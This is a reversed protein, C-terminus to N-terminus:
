RAGWQHIYATAEAVARASTYREARTAGRGYAWTVEQGEANYFRVLVKADRSDM